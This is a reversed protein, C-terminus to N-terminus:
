PRLDLYFQTGLLYETFFLEISKKQKSTLGNKTDDNNYISKSFSIKESKELSKKLHKLM